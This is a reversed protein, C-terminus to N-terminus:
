SWGGNYTRYFIHRGVKEMKTMRRAWGPRVYTAHYHTSAGIDSLYLTRDDALVRKALDTAEKWSKQDSIRERIGDCAFSFQCRNRKHKNQYVVGCISNPYTPNKLRNLVVQAVAIQGKESESRAEFYIADALCKSQKKTHAGAPIPKNVWAHTAKVDPNLVITKPKVIVADFPIDATNEDVPSAYALATTATATDNDTANEVNATSTTRAVPVDKAVPSGIAAAVMFASRPLNGEGDVPAFIGATHVLGADFGTRRKPLAMMDTKKERNIRQNSAAISQALSAATVPDAGSIGEASISGAHAVPRIPQRDGSATELSITRLQNQYDVKQTSLVFIIASVLWLNLFTRQRRRRRTARVIM